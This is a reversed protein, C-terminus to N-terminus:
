TSVFTNKTLSPVPFFFREALGIKHVRAQRRDSSLFNCPNYISLEYNHTFGPKAGSFHQTRQLLCKTFDIGRWLYLNWVLIGEPYVRTLLKVRVHQCGYDMVSNVKLYVSLSSQIQSMSRRTPNLVIGKRVTM